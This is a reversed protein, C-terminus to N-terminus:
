LTRVLMSVLIKIISFVLFTGKNTSNIEQVTTPQRGAVTSGEVNVGEAGVMAGVFISGVRVGVSIWGEAVGSGDGVDVM